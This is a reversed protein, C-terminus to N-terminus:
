LLEDHGLNVKGVLTEGPGVFLAERDQSLQVPDECINGKVEGERHCTQGGQGPWGGIM